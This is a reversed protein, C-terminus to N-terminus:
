ISAMQVEEKEVKEEVAEAVVEKVLEETAATEMAETKADAIQQAAPDIEIPVEGTSTDVTRPVGTDMINRPEM